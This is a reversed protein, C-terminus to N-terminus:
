SYGAAEAESILAEIKESSTHLLMWWFVVFLAASKFRGRVVARLVAKITLLTGQGYPSCMAAWCIPLTMLTLLSLTMANM